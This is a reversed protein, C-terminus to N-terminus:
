LSALMEIYSERARRGIKIGVRSDEIGMITDETKVQRMTAM